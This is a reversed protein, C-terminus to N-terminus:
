DDRRLRRPEAGIEWVSIRSCSMEAPHERTKAWRACEGRAEEEDVYPGRITVENGCNECTSAIVVYTM